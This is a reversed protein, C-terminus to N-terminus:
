QCPCASENACAFLELADLASPGVLGGNAEVVDRCQGSTYCDLGSCNAGRVCQYIAACGDEALCLSFQEFCAGCLCQECDDIADQLCQDVSDIAGCSGCGFTTIERVCRKDWQAECCYSDLSCVCETIEPDPCM